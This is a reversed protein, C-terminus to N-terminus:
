FQFYIFASDPGAELFMLALMAGYLYPEAAPM